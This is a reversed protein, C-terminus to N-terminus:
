NIKLFGVENIWIMASEAVRYPKCEDTMLTTSIDYTKVEPTYSIEIETKIDKISNIKIM